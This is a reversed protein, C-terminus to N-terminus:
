IEIEKLRQKMRLHKRGGFKMIIFENSEIHLLPICRQKERVLAEEDKRLQVGTIHCAVWDEYEKYMWDIKVM